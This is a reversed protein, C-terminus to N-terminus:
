VGVDGAGEEGHLEIVEGEDYDFMRQGRILDDREKRELDLRLYLETTAFQKHGYMAQVIRGAKDHGKHALQLYLALGGSRRLTHGGEGRSEYGMARLASQVPRHPVTMQREPLLVGPKTMVLKGNIGRRYSPASIPPVVHHWPQVPQGILGGYKFRWTKFEDALEASIPMRDRDSVKTRLLDISLLDLDVDRWRLAAAEIPRLLAYLGLAVMMRDRPHHSEAVALLEPFREKPVFLKKAQAHPIKRIGSLPDQDRGMVGRSRCWAFFAQLQARVRNITGPQWDAHNALLMDFHRPTLGKVHINGTAELLQRVTRVDSVITKAAYGRASRSARYQEMADSLLM